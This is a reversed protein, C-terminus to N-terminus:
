QLTSYYLRDIDSRIPDLQHAKKISNLAKSSLGLLTQNQALEIYDDATNFYDIKFNNIKKQIEIPQYSLKYNKVQDQNLKSELSSANDWDNNQVLLQWFSLRGLYSNSGQFSSLKSKSETYKDPLNFILYFNIGLILSLIILSIIKIKM